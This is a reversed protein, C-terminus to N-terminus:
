FSPTFRYTLSAPFVPGFDEQPPFSTVHINTLNDNRDGTPPRTRQRGALINGLFHQRDVVLGNHLVNHFFSDTSTHFVNNKHGVTVLTNNFIVEVIVKLKLANQFAGSLQLHELFDALHGLHDVDHGNTLLFLETEAMRHQAGLLHYTVFGKRDHDAVVNHDAIVRSQRLKDLHRGFVVHRNDSDHFYGCVLYVTVTDYHTFFDSGADIVNRIHHLFWGYARHIGAEGNHSAIHQSRINKFM